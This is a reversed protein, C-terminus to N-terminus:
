VSPDFFFSGSSFASLGSLLYATAKGPTIPFLSVMLIWVSGYYTSSAQRSSSGRARAPLGGRAAALHAERM